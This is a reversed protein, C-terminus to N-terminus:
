LAAGQALLATHDAAPLLVLALLWLVAITKRTIVHGEKRAFRHADRHADRHMRSAALSCPSVPTVHHLPRALNFAFDTMSRTAAMESPVATGNSVDHTLTRAASRDHRLPSFASLKAYPCFLRM